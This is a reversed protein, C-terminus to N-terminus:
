RQATHAHLQANELKKGRKRQAAVRSPRAIRPGCVRAMVVSVKGNKRQLAEMHIPIQWCM